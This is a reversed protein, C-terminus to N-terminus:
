KLKTTFWHKPFTGVKDKKKGYKIRILDGRENLSINQNKHVVVIEEPKLPYPSKLNFPHEAYQPLVKLVSPIEDSPLLTGNSQYAKMMAKFNSMDYLAGNIRKFVRIVQGQKNKIYKYQEAM